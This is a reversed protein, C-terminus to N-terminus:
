VFVFLCPVNVIIKAGATNFSVFWIYHIHFEIVVKQNNLVAHLGLAM